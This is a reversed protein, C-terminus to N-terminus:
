NCYITNFGRQCTMFKGDPGFQNWMDPSSSRPEGEFSRQDFSPPPTAPPGDPYRDRMTNYDDKNWDKYANMEDRRDRYYPSEDGEDYASAPMALGLVVALIISYATRKQRM